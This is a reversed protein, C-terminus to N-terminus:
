WEEGIDKFARVGDTMLQVWSRKCLRMVCSGRTVGGINYWIDYWRKLEMLLEKTRLIYTTAEHIRAEESSWSYITRHNDEEWWDEEQRLDRQSTLENWEATNEDETVNCLGKVKHMEDDIM